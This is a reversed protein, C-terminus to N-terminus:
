NFLKVKVKIGGADMEIVKHFSITLGSPVLDLITKSSVVYELKV